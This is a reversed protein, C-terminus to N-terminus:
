RNQKEWNKWPFALCTSLLKYSSFISFYSYFFLTEICQETKQKTKTRNIDKTYFFSLFYVLERQM